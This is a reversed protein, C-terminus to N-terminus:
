GDRNPTADDSVLDCYRGISGAIIVHLPGTWSIPDRVTDLRSDSLFRSLTVAPLILFKKRCAEGAGAEILTEELGDRTRHRCGRHCPKCLYEFRKDERSWRDGHKDYERADDRAVTEGCAICTVRKESRDGLVTGSSRAM